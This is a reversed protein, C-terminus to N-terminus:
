EAQIEPPYHPNSLKTHLFLNFDANLPIEKDGLPMYITRGRKIIARGYVSALVADISEEMNEILVPNGVEISLELMQILKKMNTLRGMKLDHDKEKEKIWTIGQLQPDVMLSYRESSTLICGNEISVQDAPLKCNNWEAVTAEDTLINIPNSDPSLPINNEQFFPIFKEKIIMDRFAKNFPGVYSVFASALLVDGIVVKLKETLTVIANGWRESESGLANVLRQALDLRSACRNAEDEAAQKEAMAKNYEGELIALEKNLKEVLADMQAKKENAARLQEQAESVARRKPEVSVVVDYYMTINRVWDCIGAAAGSKSKIVEPTFDENNIIPRIAKFNHTPIQGADIKEKVDKLLQILYAPDKMLGLASKWDNESKYKGNKDTPILKDTSALINLVCLFTEIIEKPPKNYAKMTRFESIDLGKLAEEAKEVLPLAEDLDKKVSNLKLDVSIQIEACNKAEIEAKDNEIEVKAKEKGVIEAQADSVKKKEEVEVQSIKLDEELKSVIEGTEKLKIVGLEYNDKNKEIESKTKNFMVKFLKILELFSKPTTYVFRKEIELIKDSAQNVIAFSFPMFRVVADRIVDDDLELEDTFKKAVSLLAEEPWPQFWDIITNNVIAPFKRARSRFSEGVPSFCISMHLNKRVRQIFYNWCNEKNDLIGAGKVAPRINNVIADKDETVYLDPIEGSSLLDNIYVLFRENSIQGETFLFLVGEDKVGARNYMEQLDTKLDNMGYSSSIMIQKTTYMCIFSALRSLSQKGSGGVGVLLAHGGDSSVIRSIKCIHNMADEFLVLDMNPNTDNYESLAEHLRSSLDEQNQFQDYINDELGNVFRAFVINEPNENFYKSLNFKAFSKKVLTGLEAKFIKLHDLSVLRDGYIRESEHVWLKIFNDPEKIIEPKAVLLGQFINTLHRVNFEYHFNKATKRFNKEVEGHLTLTAKIVPAVYEQISPKFKSFHTTLFTSYITFLSSSEPFPIALMWFHRQLRPNVYFSGAAPNMCAYKLTNMIDKLQMKTRDYWHGYDAHQRLLAIATQTNYEDLKPMNLDDIFYILKAKGPPAFTKGARKELNQELITQLLMSDTYFNFNIIQYTYSEGDAALDKLLGKSIQTKGCGANGVLLPSHGVSIYQKLLYQFSVTDTTPITFNSIPEATNVKYEKGLLKSWEELKSNKIDVYYDFIGGRSPFKITKWKDKWWNSFEKRYDKGDVETFGAGISWVSAFVFIYELGQVEQTDLISELLKCIATIMQIDVVPVVFKFYKKLHLLTEPLYKDFLNQLQEKIDDDYSKAMIWSKVYAKWQYGGSDSIYLIGARSVTAPSAFALDRIEFIMKMNSKLPIRENSALTLIKNDDMVSNMSEIWNADLDGDLVIWKPNTNTEQVLMRMMKSFLGDKWERTSMMVYGYLENTTISKPNIDVYTTKEGSIEQAKALTKWTCSKGCGPPGIVFVCHRIEQLEKLQVVKLIFEPDPWLKFHSVAGEIHNEFEMNRKRPVEINPFLDGILGMFIELDQAVIKPLNFDRLARMLLAREDLDPEARKFGGAVVLVSKIARLGWDYHRQNSLLAKCLAYLTTFKKALLKAGTFGEAMLMNECILELDPVVVTIPRFLAKLGEPLESRGLYGPNMTIFVGCSPDLSIEDDQIKFRPVEAKIADTVSKFQVSCVSLVEPILRNFEDFCGWSGSSALGKFIGGMGKYDMQDSCNFVYCAKGMASALDKTTETKGTGAPGAPACGMKLHLAQTATVYIRDTLPTVVLRSGNGLYEYGYWFKADTIKLECDNRELNWYAKLQSQWQFEDPKKVRENILKEIIDRSHTDLTIMTMVKTRVDKEIKGRVVDILSLLMTKQKELAPKLSNSSMAEEVREVWDMLCVLLTIQAPDRLLWEGREMTHQNRQSKDTISKLTSRM